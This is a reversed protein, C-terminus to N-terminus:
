AREVDREEQRARLDALGRALRSHVTGVPLNLLEAIEAPPYGLGFRLMIVIRRQESLASIADLLARDEAAIDRTAEDILDPRELGVLRRERRLLDLARNVVIRHLWPAFPRTRDFRTLAAFAREFADQAVDDALERRGTVGWALRWASPWHRSFLEGAASRNGRAAASVLQADSRGAMRMDMTRMRLRNADPSACLRSLRLLATFSNGARSRAATRAPQEVVAVLEVPDVVVAGERVVRVLTAGAPVAPDTVVAGRAGDSPAGTATTVASVSCATRSTDGRVPRTSRRTATVPSGVVSAPGVPGTTTHLGAAPVTVIREHGPSRRIATRCLNWRGSIAAIVGSPSHASTLSEAPVIEVISRVVSRITSRTQTPRPACWMDTLGLWRDIQTASPSFAPV